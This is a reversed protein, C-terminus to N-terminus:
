KLPAVRDDRGWKLSLRVNVIDADASINRDNFAGAAGLCTGEPPHRHAPRPHTLAGIPLYTLHMGASPKEAGELGHKM